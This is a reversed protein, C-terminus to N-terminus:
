IYVYIYIYVPDGLLFAVIKVFSLVIVKQELAFTNKSELLTRIFKFKSM